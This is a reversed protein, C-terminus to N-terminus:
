PQIEVRGGAELPLDEGRLLNQPNVFIPPKGFRRITITGPDGPGQYDAAVLAKVLTLDPTWPLIATKVHGVMWVSNEPPQQATAGQRQGAIFAAQAQANAKSKTECGGGALVLALGTFLSWVLWRRM